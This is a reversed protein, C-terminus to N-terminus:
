VVNARTNTALDAPIIKEAKKWVVRALRRELGFSLVITAVVLPWSLVAPIKVYRLAAVWALVAAGAAILPLRGERVDSSLALTALAYPVAVVLDILYHEGRGLTALVMLLCIAGTVIRLSRWPRAMWFLMLSGGFHLSPMANPRGALLVAGAQVVAPPIPYTPYAYMPGAAPFLFYLACGICNSVVFLRVISFRFQGHVRSHAAYMVCFWFGLSNYVMATLWVLVPVPAVISGLIFSPQLGLSGDFAYLYYDLKLPLLVSLLAFYFGLCINMYNVLAMVGVSRQMVSRRPTRDRFMQVCLVLLSALGLFTGMGIILSGAYGKEGVLADYAGRMLAGLLATIGVERRSPRTALHIVFTGWMSWGSLPNDIYSDYLGHHVAVVVPFVLVTGLAAFAVARLGATTSNGPIDM